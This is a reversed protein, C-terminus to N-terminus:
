CRAATCHKLLARKGSGGGAAIASDGATCGVCAIERKGHFPGTMCAEEHKARSQVM